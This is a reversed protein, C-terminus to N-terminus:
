ADSFVSVALVSLGSLLCAGADIVAAVLATGGGSGGPSSLWKVGQWEYRLGNNHVRSLAHDTGKGAVIGGAQEPQLFDAGKRRVDLACGQPFEGLEIGHGLHQLEAHGRAVPQFGEFAVAFSLVGDADVILPADAEAPLRVPRM